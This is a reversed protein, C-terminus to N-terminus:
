VTRTFSRRGEPGDNTRELALREGTVHITLLTLNGGPLVQGCSVQFPDELFGLEDTRGWCSGVAHEAVRGSATGTCSLAGECSASTAGCSASASVTARGPAPDRSQASVNLAAGERCGFRCAFGGRGDFTCHASGDSIQVTWSDRFETWSLATVLPALILAVAGVVIWRRRM